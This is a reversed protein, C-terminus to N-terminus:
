LGAEYIALCNYMKDFIMPLLRMDKQQTPGLLKDWDDVTMNEGALAKAEELVIQLVRDDLAPPLLLMPSEGTNCPTYEAMDIGPNPMVDVFGKMAKLTYNPM